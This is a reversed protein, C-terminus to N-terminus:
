MSVQRDCPAVPPASDFPSAGAGGSPWPRSKGSTRRPQRSLGTPFGIVQRAVFASVAGGVLRRFAFCSRVRRRACRRQGEVADDRCRGAHGWPRLRRYVAARGSLSVSGGCAKTGLCSLVGSRRNVEGTGASGQAEQRRQCVHPFIRLRRPAAGRSRTCRSSRRRFVGELGDVM